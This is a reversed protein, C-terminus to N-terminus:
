GGAARFLSRQIKRSRRLWASSRGSAIPGLSTACGRPGETRRSAQADLIDEEGVFITILAMANSVMIGEPEGRWGAVGQGDRSPSKGRISWDKSTAPSPLPFGSFRKASSM